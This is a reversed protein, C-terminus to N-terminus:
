HKSNSWSKLLSLSKNLHECWEEREEKTDAALLHRALTYNEKPVCVLTEVDDSRRERKSELLITHLRSCITRPAQDARETSISTLDVQGLAEKRKEDEPYKWYFLTNGSLRCWRRHWAGFGSIDDFMTLFGCHNVDVTIKSDIKLYVNGNLPSVGAATENIVWSKQKIERLSFIIYGYQVLAPTRVANPGGPSQIPLRALNSEQLRSKFKKKNPTQIHYKIDHPLIERQATMGYIELTIKFDAYVENFTLNDTFKVSKLGPLTPLTKSALVYENYKVLCLLHHGNIEDTALRNIYTQKLPIIIESITLTGKEKAAGFRDVHGEVKLRQVENLCALRRHTAVLLHREGEVAETSGSFEVTSACLNLAQSTQSIITQQRMVEDLLRQIKNECEEKAKRATQTRITENKDMEETKHVIKKIPTNSASATQQRRYFSVTHVLTISDDGHRAPSIEVKSKVPIETDKSMERFSVRKPYREYEFSDSCASGKDDYDKSDDLAENLYDDMDHMADSVDTSSVTSELYSQSGLDTSKRVKNLLERGISLNLNESEDESSMDPENSTARQSSEAYHNNESNDETCSVTATTYNDVESDTTSEIDSLVPYLRQPNSIRARKKDDISTQTTIHEIPTKESSSSRRKRESKEEYMIENGDSENTMDQDKMSYRNMICKMDEERQKRIEDSIQKESITKEKEALLKNVASKINITAKDIVSEKNVTDSTLNGCAVSKGPSSKFGFDYKKTLEPMNTRIPNADTIGFQSRPVPAKGKNKEFIAMREKLSMEAPDKQNKVFNNTFRVSRQEISKNSSQSSTSQVPKPAPMSMPPPKPVEKKAPSNVPFKKVPSNNSVKDSPKIFSKKPSATSTSPQSKSYDYVLKPTTSERRAFGQAELSDMVKKDWVLKKPSNNSKDTVSKLLSEKRVPSSTIASRLKDPTSVTSHTKAPSSTSSKSSVSNAKMPSKNSKTQHHSYDDDWSNIDQALEVLKSYKKVPRSQLTSECFKEETRQIPSSIQDNDSYLIGLRKLNKRSHDRLQVANNFNDFNSLSNLTSEGKKIMKGDEDYECEAVEVEVQINQSSTINIEVAVDADEKKSSVTKPTNSYRTVQSTQASKRPSSVKVTDQRKNEKDIFSSEELLSSQNSSIGLAKNRKENRELLGKTFNDM